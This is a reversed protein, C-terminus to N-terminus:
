EIYNKNREPPYVIPEHFPMVIKQYAKCYQSNTYEVIAQTWKNISKYLKIPKKPLPTNFESPLNTNKTIYNSFMPEHTM